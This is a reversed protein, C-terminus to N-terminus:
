CDHVFMHLHMHLVLAAMGHGQFEMVNDTHVL